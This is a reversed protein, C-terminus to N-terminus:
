DFEPQLASRRGISGGGTKAHGNLVLVLRINM